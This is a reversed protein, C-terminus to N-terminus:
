FPPLISWQWFNCENDKNLTNIVVQKVVPFPERWAKLINAIIVDSEM